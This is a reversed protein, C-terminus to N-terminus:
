NNSHILKLRLLIGKCLQKFCKWTLVEFAKAKFDGHYGSFFIDYKKTKDCPKRLQPNYSIAKDLDVDHLIVDAWELLKKGKDNQYLILSIGKKKEGTSLESGWSDGITLDSGRNIGAFRCSYCNETYDVNCLFALSYQDVKGPYSTPIDNCRVGFSAKKRFTISDIDEIKYGCQKLYDKLLIPSPTGHCILDVTYLQSQYKEGVYNRVAEVQCPLGVFLVLKGDRVEKNIEDYIGQPNSKVYKSGKFKKLEETMGAITFRFEGKDFVCSCVIGGKNIFGIELASALGGSSARERVNSDAAWGQYWAVPHTLNLDRNNQCIVHCRGCNVCKNQDIVANYAELSDNIQIADKLCVSLCAMCGVCKNKECVTEQM